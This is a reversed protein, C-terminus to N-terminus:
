WGVLTIGAEFPYVEPGKGNKFLASLNYNAFFNVKRWGIRGTLGYKFPNLKFDNNDKTKIKTNNYLYVTKSKSGLKVAGYGGVGIHFVEKGKKDRFQYEFILPLSLYTATLKSKLYSNTTDAYGYIKASDSVLVINNDFRYNNIWLGLGTVLGFNNKIIPVNYELLNLQITISKPQNLELFSYEQSFGSHFQKDVLANLGIEVGGWNGDFKKSKNSVSDAFFTMIDKEVKIDGYKVDSAGKVEVSIDDPKQKLRVSSAGSANIVANITVDMKVDAAGSTEIKATSVTLDMAKIDSAGTAVVKVNDSNGRLKLTSAASPFLQLYGVQLELDLETAGESKILLTENSLPTRTKLNAIGTANIENIEAYNLILVLDKAKGTAAINLLKDKISYQFMEEPKVNGSFNEIEISNQESKNLVVTVPGDIKIRSFQDLSISPQATLQLILLFGAIFTIIIAKMEQKFLTKMISPKKKM